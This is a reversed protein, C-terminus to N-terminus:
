LRVSRIYAGSKRVIHFDQIEKSFKLTSGSLNPPAESFIWEKGPPIKVEAYDSIVPKKGTIIIFDPDFRSINNWRPKGTILVKLQGAKLYTEGAGIQHYQAKLLLTARHRAIDTVPPTAGSYVYLHRGSRIGFTTTGPTNYVIIEESLGTKIRNVEGSVLFLILFMMPYIVSLSDKKLLHSVAAFIFASFFICESTTMGIGELSALPLSSSLETLSETAGALSGLLMGLFRSIVRIRFVLPIIAGTIVLVSSLPVIIINTLIFYTPFRNFLTITLPLTGAQAVITISASQWIKDAVINRFIHKRYLDQYFVIIYIVAFYSLQFGADFIVSPKILMLIFASALVTNIGNAPRNLLKGAQLFSFMLTARMVSPTLGTVFAFGWLITITIIVRLINFRKKLFFLINFIFLSLIGTHLGSVAMIHMVGAKIFHSKQENDLMNKQGLIIASVLALRDGSIGCERYMSIIRERLILAKYILKRHPPSTHSLVDQNRAFAYYRIGKNQMFFSYDFERPNGKSMIRVPSVKIRIRDGPLLALDSSDKKLYILISGYIRKTIKKETVSGIRLTLMYTGTKGAPYDELTCNYIAAAPALDSIGKKEKEYLLSGSLFLSLSMAVGFPINTEPKSFKLGAVFFAIIIVLLIIIFAIDPCIFLGSIIGACFPVCIRLFPIEKLLM